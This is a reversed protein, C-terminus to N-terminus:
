FEPCKIAGPKNRKKNCNVLLTLSLEHAGGTTGKLKSLTVDYSYGVRIRNLSLGLLLIVGDSNQVNYRYWIGAVLPKRELYVGVNLQQAAQQYQYLINPSLVFNNENPNYGGGGLDFKAGAHITYKRYLLNEKSNAYFELAPQAIHHAAFGIFYKESIGLVLGSAFDPVSVTSNDIPIEASSGSNINGTSPDIMDRFILEEYKLKQQHFTAELGANLNLESSLKIHVSYIASIRTTNMIGKGINDSIMMLGLGGSLAKFYRDASASYTTFNNDLSPWQNRYNFMLRACDDTGALAPNLYLPNSYFQSFMADQSESFKPLFLLSTFVMQFLLLVILSKDTTRRIKIKVIL